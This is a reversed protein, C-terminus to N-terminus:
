YVASIYCKVHCQKSCKLVSLAAVCLINMLVKMYFSVNLFPNLVSIIDIPCTLKDQIYNPFLGNSAKFTIMVSRFDIHFM